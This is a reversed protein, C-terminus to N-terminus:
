LQHDMISELNALPTRQYNFNSNGSKTIFILMLVHCDTLVVYVFSRYPQLQLLKEGFSTAHGIDADSFMRHKATIVLKALSWLM